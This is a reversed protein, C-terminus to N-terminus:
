CANICGDLMGLSVYTSREWMIFTPWIDGVGKGVVAVKDIVGHGGRAM